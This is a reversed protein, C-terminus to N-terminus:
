PRRYAADVREASDAIAKELGKYLNALEADVAPRMFPQARMKVTGFEVLHAHGAKGFTEIGGRINFNKRKLQRVRIHESLIADGRGPGSGRPCLVRARQAMKESVELIAKATYDGLSRTWRNLAQDWQAPTKRRGM